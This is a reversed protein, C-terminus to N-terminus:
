RVLEYVVRGTAADDEIIRVKHGAGKLEHIRASYRLGGVQLLELNTAPGLQLRDLIRFCARQLRPRAERVLRPDDSVPVRVPEPDFALPQQDSM